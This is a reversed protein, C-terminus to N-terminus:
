IAAPLDVMQVEMSQLVHPLHPTMSTAHELSSTLMTLARGDPTTVSETQKKKANTSLVDCIVSGPPAPVAPTTLVSM